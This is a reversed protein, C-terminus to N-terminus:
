VMTNCTNMLFLTFVSWLKQRRGHPIAGEPIEIVISSNSNTLQGGKHTFFGMGNSNSSSTSLIDDATASPRRKANARRLKPNTSVLASQTFDAHWEDDASDRPSEECPREEVDLDSHFSNISDSHEPVPDLEIITAESHSRRLPSKRVVKKPGGSYDYGVKEETEESDWGEELEGNDGGNAEVFDVVDQVDRETIELMPSPFSLTAGREESNPNSTDEQKASLSSDTESRSCDLKLHLEQEIASILDKKCSSSNQLLVNIELLLDGLSRVLTEKGRRSAAPMVTPNEPDDASNTAAAQGGLRDALVERNQLIIALSKRNINKGVPNTAERRVVTSDEEDHIVITGQRPRPACQQLSQQLQSNVLYLSSHEEDLGEMSKSSVLRSDSLCHANDPIVPVDLINPTSYSRQFEHCIDLSTCEKSIDELQEELTLATRSRNRPTIIVTPPPSALPPACAKVQKKSKGLVTEQKLARIVDKTSMLFGAPNSKAPPSPSPQFFKRGKSQLIKKLKYRKGSKAQPKSSIPILYASPQEQEQQQLIMHERLMSESKPPLIPPALASGGAAGRSKCPPPILPVKSNHSHSRKIHPANSSNVAFPAYMYEVSGSSPPRAFATKRPLLRPPIVNPRPPIKPPLHYLCSAKDGDQEFDIDVYEHWSGTPIRLEATTKSRFPRRPKPEFDTMFNIMEQAFISGQSRKWDKLNAALAKRSPANGEQKRGNDTSVAKVMKDNQQNTSMYTNSEESDTSQGRTATGSESLVTMYYESSRSSSPQSNPHIRNNGQPAVPLHVLDSTSRGQRGIVLPLARMMIYEDDGEPDTVVGRRLEKQSKPTTRRKIPATQSNTQTVPRHAKKDETSIIPLSLVDQLLDLESQLEQLMSGAKSNEPLFAVSISSSTLSQTPSPTQQSPSKLSDDPVSTRPTPMPRKKLDLSKASSHAKQFKRFQDDDDFVNQYFHIPEGSLTFSGTKGGSGSSRPSGDDFINEYFHAPDPETKSQSEHSNKGEQSSSYEFAKRDVNGAQKKDAVHHEQAIAEMRTTNIALERPQLNPCGHSQDRAVGSSSAKTSTEDGSSALSRTQEAIPEEVRFHSTLSKSQKTQFPSRLVNNASCAALPSRSPQKLKPSNGTTSGSTQDKARASFFKTLKQVSSDSAMKEIIVNPFDYISNFQYYPLHHSCVKCYFGKLRIIKITFNAKNALM